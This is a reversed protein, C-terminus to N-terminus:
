YHTPFILFASPSSSSDARLLPLFKQVGYKSYLAPRDPQENTPAAAAITWSNINHDHAGFQYQMQVVTIGPSAM